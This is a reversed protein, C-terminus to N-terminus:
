GEIVELEVPAHGRAILGLEEAAARSVDIVRGATFPGRDNIRVTVSKGNAPNTVRVISGFPLSRHAATLAGARYAEGSATRRGEFKSAYYSASGGAIARANPLSPQALDLVPEPVIAVFGEALTGEASDNAAASANLGTLALCAASATLAIQRALRLFRAPTSAKASMIRLWHHCARGFAFRARPDDIFGQLEGAFRPSFAAFHSRATSSIPV